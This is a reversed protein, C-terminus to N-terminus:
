TGPGAIGFRAILLAEARGHDKKRALDDRINPWTQRALTLSATKDARLLGARRKWASPLTLTLPLGKSAICGRLVGWSEGYTFVSSVGQKPMSAAQELIVLWAVEPAGGVLEDLVDSLQYADVQKGKGHLKAQTPMDQVTVGDPTITAIAGGLGPDIGIRYLSM